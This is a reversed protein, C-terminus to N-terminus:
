MLTMASRPDLFNGSLGVATFSDLPLSSSFDGALDVGLFNGVMSGLQAPTDLKSRALSVFIRAVSLEIFDKAPATLQYRAQLFNSVSVASFSDLTVTEQESLDM